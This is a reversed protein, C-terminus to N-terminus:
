VGMGGGSYPSCGLEGTPTERATVRMHVQTLKGSAFHNYNYDSVPILGLSQQQTLIQHKQWVCERKVSM